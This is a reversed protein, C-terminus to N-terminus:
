ADGLSRKERFSWERGELSCRLLEGCFYDLAICSPMNHLLSELKQAFMRWRLDREDPVMEEESERGGGEGSHVDREPVTYLATRRSLRERVGELKSIRSLGSIDIEHPSSGM